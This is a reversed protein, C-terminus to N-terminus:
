CGAISIVNVFEAQFTDGDKLQRSLNSVTKKIISISQPVQTQLKGRVVSFIFYSKAHNKNKNKKETAFVDWMNKNSNVTVVEKKESNSTLSM